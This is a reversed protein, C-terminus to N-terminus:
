YSKGDQYRQRRSHRGNGKNKAKYTPLQSDCNPCILRLNGRANNESNGDIHDLVFVLLVSEWVDDCSCIDCLGNQDDYIYTRVYHGKRSSPVCEGTLLWRDVAQRKALDQQCKNSCYKYQHTKLKLGCGACFKEM